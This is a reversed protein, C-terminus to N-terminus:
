ENKTLRLNHIPSDEEMAERLLSAVEASELASGEYFEDDGKRRSYARYDGLSSNKRKIRVEIRNGGKVFDESEYELVHKNLM